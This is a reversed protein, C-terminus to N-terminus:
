GPSKLVQTSYESVVDYSAEIEVPALVAQKPASAVYLSCPFSYKEEGKSYYTVNKLLDSPVNLLELSYGSVQFHECEALIAEPFSVRIQRLLKLETKEDLRKLVISFDYEKGEEYPMDSDSVLAVSYPANFPMITRARGMHPESGIYIPWTARLSVPRELVVVVHYAEVPRATESLEGYCRFSTHMEESSLPFTFEDGFAYKGLNRVELEREKKKGLYCKPKLRLETLEKNKVSLSVLLNIKNQLIREDSFEVEINLLEEHSQREPEDWQVFFPCRPDAYFCHKFKGLEAFFSSVKERVPALAFSAYTGFPGTSAVFLTWLLFAIGIGIACGVIGGKVWPPLPCWYYLFGILFFGVFGGVTFVLFFFFGSFLGAFGFKVIPYISLLLAVVLGLIAGMVGAAFAPKLAEKVSLTKFKERFASAGLSAGIVGFIIALIVLIFIPDMGWYYPSKTAYGILTIFPFM